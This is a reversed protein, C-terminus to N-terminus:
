RYIKRFCLENESNDEIYLLLIYSILAHVSVSLRKFFQYLLQLTEADIRLGTTAM